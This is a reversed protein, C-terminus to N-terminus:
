APRGRRRPKEERIFRTGITVLLYLVGVVIFFATSTGDDSFGFLFPSAILLIALLYDLLVHAPLPITKALGTSMDTSAAIILVLVGAVIAVAKATGSDFSFLFPAAIFVAGAIYEILGHVFAPIPGERFM